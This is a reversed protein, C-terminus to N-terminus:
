KKSGSTSKIYDIVAKVDDEKMIGQFAPMVPQYGKVIKATSILISERLYNDDAKVSGGSALPVQTGYIGELEPALTTNGIQHCARCGQAELVAKGAAGPENSSVAVVPAAGTGANM